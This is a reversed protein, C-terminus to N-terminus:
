NEENRIAKNRQVHRLQDTLQAHQIVPTSSVYWGSVVIGNLTPPFLEESYKSNDAYSFFNTSNGNRFIKLEKNKSVISLQGM